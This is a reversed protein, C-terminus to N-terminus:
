TRVTYNESRLMGYLRIDKMDVALRLYEKGLHEIKVDRPTPLEPSLMRPESWRPVNLGTLDVEFILPESTAKSRIEKLVKTQGWRDMVTPHELGELAQNLLHIVLGKSTLRLRIRWDCNVGLVKIRQSFKKESILDDLAEPGQKPNLVILSDCSSQDSQLQDLLTLPRKKGESTHTGFPPVVWVQGGKHLFGKIYQYESESVCACGDLILPTTESSLRGSNDFERSLVFRYGVNREVLALSWRKVRDWYEQGNEDRWGNEKNARLFALRVEVVDTGIDADDNRREWTNYPAILEADEQTDGPDEILGQTLTSIWNTVGWFRAIAWSLYAGDEYVTYSCAVAPVATKISKSGGISKHLMAEPEMQSWRVTGAGIGCNELMVWDCVEIFNEYSLALSNLLQPGSSSCCTMLIRDPGLVSRVMALYDAVVRYRMQVWDRFAPNEYNGWTTPHGGTDGWFSKDSVPPLEHGCERQFRERCHRCGCSRFFNYFAMDDQQLGDMPIEALQRKLYAVHMAQFDPNDLCFMEGQYISTYAREGTVLDVECLDNFRYGAYGATEAAVADPYLNVTHRQFSHYKIREEASNPRAILNCSYHDLFKIKRQHLAETIEAFLGHMAGFNWAFDFRYHFGFQIVTDVEAKALADARRQIMDRAKKEPWLLDDLNSWWSAARRPQFPNAELNPMTKDM